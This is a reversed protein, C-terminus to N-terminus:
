AADKGTEHTVVDHVAKAVEDISQRGDVTRLIGTQAYHDVVDRLSELQLDLRARITDARDDERQVLPSGDIDCIGSTLPPNTAENYVHGAEQCVWRGSLRQVLEESPVEINVALDVGSGRETLARDLAEAQARNRPFGDLIAGGSADPQALRELLMEITIDDPVLQGREMFRRAELGIPSNDRVAARFLDGTAVHPVGLREALLVAQTGKGAGPAGLLVIVTVRRDQRGM